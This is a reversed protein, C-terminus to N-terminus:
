ASLCSGKLPSRPPWGTLLSHCSLNVCTMSQCRGSINDCVQGSQPADTGGVVEIQLWVDYGESLPILQIFMGHEPDSGIVMLPVTLAMVLGLLIVTGLLRRRNTQPQKDHANPM